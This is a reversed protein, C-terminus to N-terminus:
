FNEKKNDCNDTVVAPFASNNYGGFCIYFLQVRESEAFYEFFIHM